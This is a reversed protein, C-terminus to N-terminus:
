AHDVSGSFRKRLEEIALNEEPTLTAHECLDEIHLEFRGQAAAATRGHVDALFFGLAGAPVSASRLPLRRCVNAFFGPCVACEFAFGSLQLWSKRWVARTKALLVILGVVMCVHLPFIFLLAYGLGAFSTLLPGIIFFMLAVALSLIRFGRLSHHYLRLLRAGFRSAPPSFADQMLWNDVQVAALWPAFPNLVVLPRGALCYGLWPFIPVWQGKINESLLIARSNATRVNDAFYFVGCVIWFTQDYVIVSNLLSM